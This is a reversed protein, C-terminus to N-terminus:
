FALLWVYSKIPVHSSPSRRGGNFLPKSQGLFPFGRFLCFFIDTQFNAFWRCVEFQFNVLSCFKLVMQDLVLEINNLPKFNIINLKYTQLSYLPKFLSLIQQNMADPRLRLPKKKYIRKQKQALQKVSRSQIFYRDTRCENM